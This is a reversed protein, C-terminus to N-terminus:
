VRCPRRPSNKGIGDDTKARAREHRLRCARKTLMGRSAARRSPGLKKTRRRRSVTACGSLDALPHLITAVTADHGSMQAAGSGTLGIAAHRLPRDLRDARAIYAAPRPPRHRTRRPDPPRAGRPGATRCYRSQFANATGDGKPHHRKAVAPLPWGWVADLWSPRTGARELVEVMVPPYADYVM